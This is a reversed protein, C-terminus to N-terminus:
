DTGKLGVSRVITLMEFFYYNVFGGKVWRWGKMLAVESRWRRGWQFGWQCVRFGGGGGEDEGFWRWGGGNIYLLVCVCVCVYIYIYIYVWLWDRDMM